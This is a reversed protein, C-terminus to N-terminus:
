AQYRKTPRKARLVLLHDCAAVLELGEVIGRMLRITDRVKAPAIARLRELLRAWQLMEDDSGEDKGTIEIAM